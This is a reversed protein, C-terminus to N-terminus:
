MSGIIRVRRHCLSRHDFTLVNGVLIRVYYAVVHLLKDVHGRRQCYMILKLAKAAIGDGLLGDYDVGLDARVVEGTRDVSLKSRNM